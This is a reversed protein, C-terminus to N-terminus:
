IAGFEAPGYTGEEPKLIVGNAILQRASLRTLSLTAIMVPVFEGNPM